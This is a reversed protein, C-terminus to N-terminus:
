PADKSPGRTLFDFDDDVRDKPAVLGFVIDAIQRAAAFEADNLDFSVEVKDVAGGVVEFALQTASFEALRLEFHGCQEEKETEIYCRNGSIEFERQVLVYPGRTRFPDSESGEADRPGCYLQYYDGSSTASFEDAQFRVTRSMRGLTFTLRVWRCPAAPRM